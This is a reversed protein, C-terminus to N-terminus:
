LQTVGVPPSQVFHEDILSVSLSSARVCTFGNPSDQSSKSILFRLYVLEGVVLFCDMINSQLCISKFHIGLNVKPPNRKM